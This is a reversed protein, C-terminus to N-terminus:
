EIEEASAPDLEWREEDKQRRQESINLPENRDIDLGMAEGMADIDNQGPTVATGSVTESGADNAQDWSADVDGGSLMPSEANYKKQKDQLSNQPQQLKQREALAEVAEDSDAYTQIDDKYKEELADNMLDVATEPTYIAPEVGHEDVDLSMVEGQLDVDIQHETPLKDKKPTDAQNAQNSM